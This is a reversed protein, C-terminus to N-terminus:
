LGPHDPYYVEEHRAVFKSTYRFVPSLPSAPNPLPIRLVSYCPWLPTVANQSCCSNIVAALTVVFGLGRFHFYKLTILIGRKKSWNSNSIDSGKILKHQETFFNCTPIPWTWENPKHFNSNQLVPCIKIFNLIPLRSQFKVCVTKNQILWYLWQKVHSEFQENEGITYQVFCQGM